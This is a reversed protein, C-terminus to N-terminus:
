NSLGDKNFIFEFYIPYKRRSLYGSVGITILVVSSIVQIFHTLYLMVEREDTPFSVNFLSVSFSYLVTKAIDVLNEGSNRDLAEYSLYICAALSGLEAISKVALYIRDTGNLLSRPFKNNVVDLYFSRGIEFGRLVLRLFIPFIIIYASIMYQDPIFRSFYTFISILILLVIGVFLNNSNRQKISNTRSDMVYFTYGEKRNSYALELQTFLDKYDSELNRDKYSSRVRTLFVEFHKALDLNLFKSKQDDHLEEVLCDDYALLFLKRRDKKLDDIFMKFALPQNCNTQEYLYRLIVINQNDQILQEAILSESFLTDFLFAKSREWISDIKVLSYILVALCFLIFLVTLIISLNKKFDSIYNSLFWILGFISLNIILSRWIRIKMFFTTLIMTPLFCLSLILIEVIKNNNVNTFSTLLSIVTIFTIFVIVTSNHQLFRELSVLLHNKNPLYFKGDLRSFILSFYYFFLILIGFSFITVGDSLFSSINIINGIRYDKNESFTLVMLTTSYVIWSVYFFLYPFTGKYSGIKKIFNM